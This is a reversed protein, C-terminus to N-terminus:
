NSITMARIVAGVQQAGDTIITHHDYGDLRFFKSGPVKAALKQGSAAPTVADFGGYIFAAPCAVKKALPVINFDLTKQMVKKMIASANKYDDAQFRAGSFGLRKALKIFPRLLRFILRGRNPGAIVFIGRVKEPYLAAVAIAIKGGFSHGALYAPEAIRDAFWSAMDAVSRESDSPPDVLACDAGTSEAVEKLSEAPNLWGPIFIIKQM